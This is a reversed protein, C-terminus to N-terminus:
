LPAQSPHTPPLSPVCPHYLQLPPEPNLVWPHPRPPTRVTYNRFSGKDKAVEPHGEPRYVLSPDPGQNPPSQAWKM